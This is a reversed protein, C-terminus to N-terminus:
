LIGKTLIATQLLIRAKETRGGKLGNETTAIELLWKLHELAKKKTLVGNEMTSIETLMSTSELDTANVMSSSDKTSMVTPSNFHALGMRTMVAGNGMTDLDMSTHTFEMVQKRAM